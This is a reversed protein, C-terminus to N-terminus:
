ASARPASPAGGAARRLGGQVGCAGSLVELDDAVVEAVELGGDVARGGGDPWGALEGGVEAGQGVGFGAGLAGFAGLEGQDVLARRGVEVGPFRPLGDVVQQEVEGVLDGGLDLDAIVGVVRPQPV